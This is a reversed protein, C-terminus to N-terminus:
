QQELLADDDAANELQRLYAPADPLAQLSEPLGNKFRAWSLDRLVIGNEDVHLTGTQGQLEAADVYRIRGLHPGISYADMGLAFLRLFIANTDPWNNQMALPTSRDRQAQSLMWPMDAFLVGEMDLDPEDRVPLGYVHSTALVPTKSSRHFLLQPRIQRAQVPQAALFIFDMDARPRPEAEIKRRLTSELAKARAESAEINLMSKILSSYDVTDAPVIVHKLITGGNEEFYTKFADFLRDGWAGEPTIAITHTYHRELAQAAVQRAEEEPPLGFQYLSNADILHRVSELDDLQNLALTPIPLEELSALTEIANKELPGVVLDAGDEVARQYVAQIPGQQSDYVNVMPQDVRQNDGYWASLFGDRIAAGVQAYRGDQPLLLAITKIKRGLKQSTSLLDEIIPSEAAHDPYRIRWTSLGNEFQEADYLTENALQDLALWAAFTSSADFADIDTQEATQIAAWIQVRNERQEAQPLLADLEARAQAADLTNGQATHADVRYQWVRRKQDDNLTDLAVPDLARIVEAPRDDLRASEAQSEDYRWQDIASLKTRTLQALAKRANLTDRALIYQEAATLLYDQRAPAPTGDELTAPTLDALTVFEQGARSYDGSGLAEQALAFQAEIAKKRAAEETCATLFLALFVLLLAVTLGRTSISTPTHTSTTRNTMNSKTQSRYPHM